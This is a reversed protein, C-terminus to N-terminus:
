EGSEPVAVDSRKSANSGISGSSPGPAWSSGVHPSGSSLNRVSQPRSFYGSDYGRLYSPNLLSECSFIPPERRPRTFHDVPVNNDGYFRHRRSHSGYMISVNEYPVLDGNSHV